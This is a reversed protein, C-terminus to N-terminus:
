GFLILAGIGFVAIDVIAHSVYGPWISRYRTVMWSWLIGGTFIGAACLAVAEPSLYLRLAIIHHLTFCAASCLIAARGALLAECKRVVFWRWVYEELVANVLVWYAAGLGYRWPTSLGVAQLRERMLAPDILLGGALRYAGLIVLSILIGSVVGVTFGGRRAPSLSPRERDIGLHWLLPLALLWVKALAFLVAGTRSGPFFVMGCLVGLSPVPVLLALAVLARIRTSRDSM